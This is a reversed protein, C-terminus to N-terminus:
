RPEDIMLILGLGIAACIGFYIFVSNFSGTNDLLFGALMPSVFGGLNGGSNIISAAIPYTKKDAVAM